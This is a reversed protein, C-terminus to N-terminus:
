AELDFYMAYPDGEGIRYFPVFTSTSRGSGSFELGKEKRTLWRALNERDPLNTLENQRVLVVPGYMLAVRRPHQKDIPALYYTMSIQVTLRDGPSWTRRVTAWGRADTKIEVPSRNVEATVLRCWGPVRVKLEFSTPKPPRVTITATNSEPYDTEQEVKIEAGDRNWTVESPVFLNVYLRSADKFYIINHYDAVAEIYTGSCCPFDPIPNTTAELASM